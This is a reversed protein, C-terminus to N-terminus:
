RDDAESVPRRRLITVLEDLSVGSLDEEHSEVWKLMVQSGDGAVALVRISPRAAFLLEVAEPMNGAPSPSVVVWQAQTQEVLAASKALDGVEGVVELDPVKEIVRKLMERLLRPKNALIVRRPQM